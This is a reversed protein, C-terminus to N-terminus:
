IFGIYLTVTYFEHNHRIECDAHIVRNIPIPVVSSIYNGIDRILHYERDAIDVSEYHAKVFGICDELDRVEGNHTMIALDLLKDWSDLKSLLIDIFRESYFVYLRSIDLVVNTINMVTTM